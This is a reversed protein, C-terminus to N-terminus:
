HITITGSSLTGSSYSIYYKGNDLTPTIDTTNVVCSGTNNCTYQGSGFGLTRDVNEVEWRSNSSDDSLFKYHHNVRSSTTFASAVAFLAIALFAIKIKM